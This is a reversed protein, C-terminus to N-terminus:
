TKAYSFNVIDEVANKFTEEDEWELKTKVRRPAPSGAEWVTKELWLQKERLGMTGKPWFQPLHEELGNGKM